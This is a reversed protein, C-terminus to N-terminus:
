QRTLSNSLKFATLKMYFEEDPHKPDRSASDERALKGPVVPFLSADVVKCASLVTGGRGTWRIQGSGGTMSTPAGWLRAILSLIDRVDTAAKPM